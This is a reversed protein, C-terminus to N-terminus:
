FKSGTGDPCMASVWESDLTLDADADADHEWSTGLIDGLCPQSIDIIKYFMYVRLLIKGLIDGLDDTM